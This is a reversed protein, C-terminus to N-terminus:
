RGFLRQMLWGDLGSDAEPRVSSTRTPVPRPPVSSPPAVAAGALPASPSVAQAITTLLGGPQSDP